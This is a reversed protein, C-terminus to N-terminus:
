PIYIELNNLSRTFSVYKENKTLGDDIVIVNKFELGKVSKIDFCPVKSNNNIYELYNENSTIIISKTLEAKKIVEDINVFKNLKVNDGEVGIGIMNTKLENNCYDVVNTTNRYNENLEYYDYDNNFIKKLSNWNQRLVSNYSINQDFDGFINLVSNSELKKVLKIEEDNYDQAEDIYIYKYPETLKFGMARLIYLITFIDNRYYKKNSFVTNLKYSGTCINEFCAKIINRPVVFQRLKNLNICDEEYNYKCLEKIKENINIICQMIQNFNDLTKENSEIISELFILFNDVKTKFNSSISVYKNLNDIEKRFTDIYCINIIKNLKNIEELNKQYTNKRFFNFISNKIKQNDSELREIEYNYDDVNKIDIKHINNINKSKTAIGEYKRIFDNLTNLSTKIKNQAETYKKTRNILFDNVQKLLNFYTQNEKNININYKDIIKYVENLFPTEIMKYKKLLNEKSFNNEIDINEDDIIEKVYYKENSFMNLYTNFKEIYYEYLTLLKIKDIGLKINLQNLQKKFNDSPAIFLFNNPNINKNNYLLYSLRHIMIVTKGSGAVGQCIINKNLDLRIIENQKSQITKIIDTFGSVDKKSKLVEKLFTDTVQNDKNNYLEHCNILEKNKIELQRKYKAIYKYNNYKITDQNAYFLSCVPSRWDYVINKGDATSISKEGVFINEDNDSSELYMHGFYPSLSLEEISKLNKLADNYHIRCRRFENLYEYDGRYEECHNKYKKVDEDLKKIKSDIKQMNNNLNEKEESFFNSINKDFGLNDM